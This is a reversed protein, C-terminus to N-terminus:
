PHYSNNYIIVGVPIIRACFPWHSPIPHHSPKQSSSLFPFSESTYSILSPVPQPLQHCTSFLSNAPLPSLFGEFPFFPVEKLSTRLGKPHIWLGRWIKPCTATIEPSYKILIPVWYYSLPDHPSDCSTAQLVMRKELATWPCKPCIWLGNM